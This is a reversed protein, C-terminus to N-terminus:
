LGAVSCDEIGQTVEVYIQRRSENNQAGSHPTEMERKEILVPAAASSWACVRPLSSAVLFEAIPPLKREVEFKKSSFNMVM